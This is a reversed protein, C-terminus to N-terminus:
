RDMAVCSVWHQTGIRWRDESRKGDSGELTIGRELYLNRGYVDNM